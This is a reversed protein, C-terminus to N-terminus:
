NELNYSSDQDTTSDNYYNEYPDNYSSNQKKVDKITKNVYGISVASMFTGLVTLVIITGWIVKRYKNAYEFFITVLAGILIISNIIGSSIAATMEGAIDPKPSSSYASYTLESLKLNNSLIEYVVGILTSVLSLILVVAVASYIIRRWKQSARWVEKEESRRVIGVFIVLAPITIILASIAAVVAYTEFSSFDFYSYMMDSTGKKPKVLWKEMVYNVLSIVSYLASLFLLVFAILSAFYPFGTKSTASSQEDVTINPLKQESKFKSTPTEFEQAVLDEQKGVPTIDM